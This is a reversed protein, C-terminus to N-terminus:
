KNVSRRSSGCTPCVSDRDVNRSGSIGDRISDARYVAGIGHWPGKRGSEREWRSMPEHEDQLSNGRSVIGPSDWPQSKGSEREWRSTPDSEGRHFNIRKPANSEWFRDRDVALYDGASANPRERYSAATGERYHHRSNDQFPDLIRTTSQTQDLDLNRPYESHHQGGYHSSDYTDFAKRSHYTLAMPRNPMTAISICLANLALNSLNSFPRNRKRDCLTILNCLNQPPERIGFLTRAFPKLFYLFLLRLFTTSKIVIRGWPQLHRSPDTSALQTWQM